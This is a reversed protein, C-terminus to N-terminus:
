TRFCRPSPNRPRRGTRSSGSRTTPTPASRRASRTADGDADEHRRPPVRGPQGQGRLRAPDRRAHEVAAGARGHLASRSTSSTRAASSPTRTRARPRPCASTRPTSGSPAHSRWSRMSASTPWSSRSPTSASSRADRARRPDFGWVDPPPTGGGVQGPLGRHGPRGRERAPRGEAHLDGLPVPWNAYNSATQDLVLCTRIARAAHVLLPPNPSYFRIVQNDAVVRGDIHIGDSGVGWRM